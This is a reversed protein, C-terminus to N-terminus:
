EVEIPISLTDSAGSDDTVILSVTITGPSPFIHEAVSMNADPLGDNNFDWSYAVIEGDFDWSSTANFLVLEGVVPQAPMYSFDAVPPHFSSPPSVPPTSDVDVLIARIFTDSNGSDDTVTLSVNMTGSNAFVYQTFSDTSDIVDDGNFDWAYAVIEGDIDTSLMGNFLMLEGAVPEVPSYEFDALPPLSTAPHEPDEGAGVVVQLTLTDTGGSGDTVTLSVEYVGVEPFIYDVIAAISDTEGDGNFDWAYSTIQGDPDASLTANFLIIAGA